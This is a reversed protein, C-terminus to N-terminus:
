VKEPLHTQQARSCQSHFVASGLAAGPSAHISGVEPSTLVGAVLDERCGRGKIEILMM